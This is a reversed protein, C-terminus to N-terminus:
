LQAAASAQVQPLEFRHTGSLQSLLESLRLPKAFLYGQALQCGARRVVELQHPTEIGEAVTGLGFDRALHMITNVLSSSDREINDTAAVFSRDIKLEDVPLQHLYGLASFGTGFDDISLRVGLAKLQQLAQRCRSPTAMFVSETIELTLQHGPLGSEALANRVHEVIDPHDLQKISLNVAIHLDSRGCRRQLVLLDRCARRLVWDGMAMIWGTREAAPIFDAPMVTGRQPHEWRMLAEVGALRGSDLDVLPQYHVALEDNDLARGLDLELELRSVVEEHLGAHFVEVRGKGANKASYMAVDADRLLEQASHDADPTSVVGISARVATHGNRMAIPAKLGDLIREATEKAGGSDTSEILVAFEDGGIRALTDGARVVTRLRDSVARLLQDGVDHGRGDNIAKFDDLDLFLVGLHGGTRPLRRLANELRDEFLARNALGTLTDHFAQHRLEGELRLHESVDRSNLVIGTVAPDDVLNTLRTEVSVFNGGITGLRLAQTVESGRRMDAQLLARSWLPVDHPHVVDVFPTGLLSEPPRGLLASSSPSQYVINGDQAVVTTLDSSSRVMASFRQATTKQLRVARDLDANTAELDNVTTALRARRTESVWILATVAGTSALGVALLLWPLLTSTSGALNGTTDVVLIFGGPDSVTGVRGTIRPPSSSAEPGPTLVTVARPGRLPLKATTALVLDQPSERGVYVAGNIGSFPHGPLSALSIPHGSLRTESYVFYGPASPAGFLRTLWRGAADEVTAAYPYGRRAMSAIVAADSDSGFHSHVIGFSAVVELRGRASRVVALASYQDHAAVPAAAARWGALNAPSGTLQGTLASLDSPAAGIYPSLVLSGQVAYQRLLEQETHAVAGREAAFSGLTASSGVILAALPLLLPRRRRM